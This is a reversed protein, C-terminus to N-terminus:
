AYLADLAPTIAGEGALRLAIGLGIGSVGGTVIARRGAFRDIGAMRNRGSRDREILLRGVADPM